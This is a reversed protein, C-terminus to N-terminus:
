GKTKLKRILFFYYWKLMICKFKLSSWNSVQLRPLLMLDTSNNVTDFKTTFAALFGANNAISSTILSYCGHTYSFYQIKKKLISEVFNKSDIIEIEQFKSSLNALSQHSVTHAGIEWYSNQGMCVLENLTLPRYSSRTIIKKGTISSLLNLFHIKAKEDWSYLQTWIAMYQNEPTKSSLIEQLEIKGFAKTERLASENIPNGCLILQELIDWWFERNSDVQGTTVFLTAPIKYKELLPTAVTFNNAYGDDFTLAVARKPLKHGKKLNDILEDISITNCYRSLIKLHSEFHEPSVHLQFPDNQVDAISHYLLIIGQDPFDKRFIDLM